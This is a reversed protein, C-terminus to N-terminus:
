ATINMLKNRLGQFIRRELPKTFLDALNEKTNVHIPKIVGEDVLERVKLDRRAMHKAVNHLVHDKAVREAGTNDMYLLTAGTLVVGLFTLLNRLFVAECAALTSAMIEAECTSLAISKQKKSGYSVVAHLVNFSWGSTSHALSWDADSMAFLWSLSADAPNKGYTIGLDKTHYLYICCQEAAKMCAETPWEQCRALMGVTYCIDPRDSTALYQLEGLISRYRSQDTTVKKSLAAQEVHKKLDQTCPVSYLAHQGGPVYKAMTAEIYRPSALKIGGDVKLIQAGLWDLRGTVSIDEGGTYTYAAGLWELFEAKLSSGKTTAILM